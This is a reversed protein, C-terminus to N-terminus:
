DAFYRWRENDWQQGLSQQDISAQRGHCHTWICDFHRCEGRTLGPNLRKNFFAWWERRTTAPSSPECSRKWFRKPLRTRKAASVGTQLADKVLRMEHIQNAINKVKLWYYREKIGNIRRVDPPCPSDLDPMKSTNVWLVEEDMLAERLVEDMLAVDYVIQIGTSARVEDLSPIPRQVVTGNSVIM